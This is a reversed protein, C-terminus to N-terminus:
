FSSDFDDGPNQTSLQLNENCWLFEKNLLKNFVSLIKGGLAPVIETKLCDNEFTLIAVGNINNRKSIVM